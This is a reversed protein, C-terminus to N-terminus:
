IKRLVPTRWRVPATGAARPLVSLKLGEPHTGFCGQVRTWTGPAVPTSLTTSSLISNDGRQVQVRLTAPTATDVATAEAELHVSRLASCLLTQEAYDNITVQIAHGDALAVVQPVGSPQWCRWVGAAARIFDPDGLLNAPAGRRAYLAATPTLVDLDGADRLARVYDLLTALDALSLYGATDLKQPHLVIELCGGMRAALDVRELLASLSLADSTCHLAGYPYLAPLARVQMVQPEDIYAEAAAYEARLRRGYPSDWQERLTFNLVGAWTGPQVWSNVHLGMAQLTARAGGTEAVFSDWDSPAAGHTASHAMPEFGWAQWGLAQAVTIYGATDLKNAILALGAVLARDRLLAAVTQTAALGDDLRVVVVGHCYTQNAWVARYQDRTAQAQAVAYEDLGFSSIM